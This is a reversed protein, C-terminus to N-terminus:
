YGLKKQFQCSGDDGKALIDDDLELMGLGLHLLPLKRFVTPSEASPAFGGGEPPKDANLTIKAQL